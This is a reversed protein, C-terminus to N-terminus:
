VGTFEDDRDVQDGSRSIKSLNLYQEFKDGFLTAPRLHTKLKRDDRWAAARDEVVAVFDIIESYGREYWFLLYHRLDNQKFNTGLIANMRQAVGICLQDFDGKLTDCFLLPLRQRGGESFLFRHIRLAVGNDLNLDRIVNSMPQGAHLKVLAKLVDMEPLTIAALEQLDIQIRPM